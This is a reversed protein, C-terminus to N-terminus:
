YPPFVGQKILQMCATCGACQDGSYIEVPKVGQLSVNKGARLGSNIYVSNASTTCDYRATLGSRKCTWSASGGSPLVKFEAKFEFWEGLWNKVTVNQDPVDCSVRVGNRETSWGACQATPVQIVVLAVMAAVAALVQSIRVNEKNM